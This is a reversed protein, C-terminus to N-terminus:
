AGTVKIGGGIVGDLVKAAAVIDGLVITLKAIDKLAEQGAQTVADLRANLATIQIDDDEIELSQLQTLKYTLDDIDDALAKQAALNGSKMAVTQLAYLATLATEGKDICDSWKAM